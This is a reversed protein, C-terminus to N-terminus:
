GRNGPLEGPTGKKARLRETVELAVVYASADCLQSAYVANMYRRARRLGWQESNSM